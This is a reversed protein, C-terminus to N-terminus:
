VIFWDASVSSIQWRSATPRTPAASLALPRASLRQWMVGDETLM